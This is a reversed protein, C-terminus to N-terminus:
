IHREANHPTSARQEATVRAVDLQFAVYHPWGPRGTLTPVFVPCKTSGVGTSRNPQGRYTSHTRTRRKECVFDHTGITFSRLAVRQWRTYGLQLISPRPM